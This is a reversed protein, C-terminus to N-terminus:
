MFLGEYMIGNLIKQEIYEAVDEDIAKELALEFYAKTDRLAPKFFPAPKTGEEAIKRGILFALENVSPLHQYQKERKIDKPAGKVRNNVYWVRTLTMVRPKVPKVQIWEKIKDIPPFKGAKRGKEVYEWYDKIRIEVKFYDEGITIVPEMTDGLTGSAYSKNKGLNDRAAQIFYDAYAELVERLHKWEINPIVKAIRGM